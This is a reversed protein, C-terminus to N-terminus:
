VPMLKGSFNIIMSLISFLVSGILAAIIGEIQFGPVFYATLAFLGANIIITFLGLTMLNIPFALLKIVPKILINIISLIIAAIIATRFDEVIIGPVIKATLILAFALLIWKIFIKLM